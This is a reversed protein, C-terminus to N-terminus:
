RGFLREIDSLALEIFTPRGHNCVEAGPTAEIRRLLANMEEVRLRRGARVSGHCAIRAVVADIRDRLADAEGWEALEDALDRVLAAADVEGLMSPTARVEIAEGERAIELGLAALDGAREALRDVDDDPLAVREPMLLMQSPVRRGHLGAKLEEMVLREHAAHQDVIVMGRETQAVIYCEHLQARAAGLPADTAARGDDARASPPFAVSPVPEVAHDFGAQASEGLGPPRQMTASSNLGGHQLPADHHLPAHVASPFALPRERTGPRTSSSGGSRRSPADRAGGPRFADLMEAGLRASGRRSDARALAERVAGVILGKVLGADRFRVEAKQPHVNADVMGPPCDLFLVAVPHRGKPLLDGYAGRLAGLLQKDRVPRGNVFVFQHLANGRNHAPLGAFGTLLVGEREAEIPVGDAAFEEGLVQALRRRLAAVPDDDTCAEWEASRRDPGTLAFRVGPSAIAARRVVDLIASGEARETRLFKLRAPVAFFLDRVEVVTGENGPAPRAPSAAGAEMRVEAGTAAGRARSRVTLRAVSGISPLAEGRFGMTRVDMLDHDLKSTAHRELALAIEDAPIGCGDDTVRLLARGGGATAIEIRRAGADLANEILEKAVSAPREVVEGAAIRNVTTPDLRVIPM